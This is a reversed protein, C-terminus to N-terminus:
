SVKREERIMNVFLPGLLPDFHKGSDEEIIRLAKEMPFAAKYVREMTLADFVDAVAMIRASVPIEEGALGKPYGSGDWKEHHYEAVDYVLQVYDEDAVGDLIKHVIRGGEDSHTKMVEFEEATLKGPKSLITDSIHIKGVDHLPAALMMDKIFKENIVEPYIGKQFAARALRGVYESTNKVHTGTNSDRSEILEAIGIITSKQMNEMKESQQALERAQERILETQQHVEENLKDTHEIEFVATRHYQVMAMGTILSISAFLLPFRQMFEKTYYAALQEKLPTYFIVFYLISYYASLILGHRVSVFYCMGIPLLFSWLVASGSAFGTLAYVTFVVACFITPIIIAKERDKKIGALYACAAGCVCSIISGGLMIYDKHRFDIAILVISLLFIVLSVFTLAFLNAKLRAGTYIPKKLTKWMSVLKKAM